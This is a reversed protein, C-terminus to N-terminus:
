FDPEDMAKSVDTAKSRFVNPLSRKNQNKVPMENSSGTLYTNDSNQNATPIDHLTDSKSESNPHWASLPMGQSRIKEYEAQEKALQEPSKQEFDADDMEETKEPVLFPQLKKTSKAQEFHRMNVTASQQNLLHRNETNSEIDADMYTDNGVFKAGQVGSDLDLKAMESHLVDTISQSQYMEDSTQEYISQQESLLIQRKMKRQNLDKQQSLQMREVDLMASSKASDIVASQIADYDHVERSRDVNLANVEMKSLYSEHAFKWDSSSVAFDDMLQQEVQKSIADWKTVFSELSAFDNYDFRNDYQLINVDYQNQVHKVTDIFKMWEISEKSDFIDDFEHHAADTVVSIKYQSIHGDNVFAINDTNSLECDELKATMLQFLKLDDKVVSDMSELPQFQPLNFILANKNEIMGYEQMHNQVCQGFHHSLFNMKDRVNYIGKQGYHYDYDNKSTYVMEGIEIDKESIRGLTEDRCYQRRGAEAFNYDMSLKALMLYDNDSLVPNGRRVDRNRRHQANQEAMSLHSLYDKEQIPGYPNIVPLGDKLLFYESDVDRDTKSANLIDAYQSQAKVINFESVTHRSSDLAVCDSLLKQYGEGDYEGMSRITDSLINMFEERQSSYANPHELRFLYRSAQEETLPVVEDMLLLSADKLQNEFMVFHDKHKIYQSDVSSDYQKRIQNAGINLRSDDSFEMYNPSDMLRQKVISDNLKYTQYQTNFQRIISDFMQAKEDATNTRQISVRGMGYENPIFSSSTIGYKQNLSDLYLHSESDLFKSEDDRIQPQESMLEMYDVADLLVDLHQMKKDIWQQEYYADANALLYEMDKKSNGTVGSM